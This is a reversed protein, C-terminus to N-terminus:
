LARHDKVAAELAAKMGLFRMDLANPDDQNLSIMKARAEGGRVAQLSDSEMAEVFAAAAASAPERAFGLEAGATNTAMMPTDTAGPYVTLVHVDDGLLERRLAEGFRALGAKAAAYTAYFPLGVFAIASAVNVVLGPKAQRLDPLAARTLLIPALLDVEIMSRIEDETATELRGARVAGANNILVDIGGLARRAAALTLARGAETAVDAAVGYATAHRSRLDAAAAEVPDARRGTLMLSAGKDALLRAMALGIGSSGGTIVVRKGTLEM